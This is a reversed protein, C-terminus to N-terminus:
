PLHVKLNEEREETLSKWDSLVCVGNVRPDFRPDRFSNKRKADRQAKIYNDKLSTTLVFKDKKLQKFSIAMPEDDSSEKSCDAM